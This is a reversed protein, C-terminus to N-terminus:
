ADASRLLMCCPCSMLLVTHEQARSSQVRNDPAEPACGSGPVIAWAVWTLSCCALRRRQHGMRGQLLEGATRQPCFDHRRVCTYVVMAQSQKPINIAGDHWCGLDGVQKFPARRLRRAARLDEQRGGLPALRPLRGQRRQEQGPAGAKGAGRRRGLAGGGVCHPYCIQSRYKAPKVLCLACLAKMSCCLGISESAVQFFPCHLCMIHLM